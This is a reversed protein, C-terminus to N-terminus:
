DHYREGALLSVAASMNAQKDMPDLSLKSAAKPLSTSIKLLPLAPAVKVQYYPESIDRVHLLRCHSEVGLVNTTYGTLTLLGSGKPKGMLSVTHPGSEPPLTITAPIPEFKLGEYLFGQSPIIISFPLCLM